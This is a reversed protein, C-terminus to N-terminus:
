IHFTLKLYPGHFTFDEHGHNDSDHCSCSERTFNPDTINFYEDFRYGAELSITSCNCLLINYALGLEAGINPVVANHENDHHDVHNTLLIEDSGAFSQEFNTRQNKNRNGVQFGGALQGNIAFCQSISYSAKIGVRPGISEYDNELHVNLFRDFPDLTTSDFTNDTDLSEELKLFRLGAFLKIMSRCYAFRWHGLLDLTYYNTDLNAHVHSFNGFAVDAFPSVLQSDPSNADGDEDIKFQTYELSFGYSRCTCSPFDYGAAVKYGLQWTDDNDLSFRNGDDTLGDFEAFTPHSFFGNRVQVLFPEVEAWWGGHYAPLQLPAANACFPMLLLLGFLKNRGIM